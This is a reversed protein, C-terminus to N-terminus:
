WVGGAGPAPGAPLCGAGPPVLSPLLPQTLGLLGRLGIFHARRSALQAHDNLRGRAGQHVGGNEASPSRSTPMSGSSAGPSMTLPIAGAASPPLPLYALWHINPCACACAGQACPLPGELSASIGRTRHAEWAAARAATSGLAGPASVQRALPANRRLRHGVEAAVTVRATASSQQAQGAHVDLDTCCTNQWTKGNGAAM